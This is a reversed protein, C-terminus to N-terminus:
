AAYEWEGHGCLGKRRKFDSAKCDPKRCQCHLEIVDGPFDFLGDGRGTNGKPIDMIHVATMRGPLTVRHLESIVFGYHELFTEYDPNNSLDREDSTYHYLGAFPPSYLSLHISEDPFGGMVEICDGNYLAYNETIEQARVAM